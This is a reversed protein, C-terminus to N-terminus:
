NEKLFESTPLDECFKKFDQHSYDINQMNPFVQEVRKQYDKDTNSPDIVMLEAKSPIIARIFIDSLHNIDAPPFSYGAIIIKKTTPLSSHINRRMVLSYWNSYENKYKSPPVFIPKFWQDQFYIYGLTNKRIEDNTAERNIQSKGDENKTVQMLQSLGGMPSYTKPGQFLTTPQGFKETQHDWEFLCVSGHIHYLQILSPVNLIKQSPNLMPFLSNLGFGSSPFWFHSHHLLADAMLSDWNFNIIYDGPELAECLMKHYRCVKKAGRPENPSTVASRIIAEFDELIWRASKGHKEARIIDSEIEEYLSELSYGKTQLKPFYDTPTDGNSVKEPINYKNRLYQSLGHSHKMGSNDCFTPAGGSNSKIGAVLKELISYQTPFNSTGDEYCYSAGAGLIIVTRNGHM